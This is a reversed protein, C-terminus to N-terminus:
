PIYRVTWFDGDMHWEPFGAMGGASDISHMFAWAAHRGEFGAFHKISESMPVELPPHHPSSM